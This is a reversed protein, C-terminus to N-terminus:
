YQGTRLKYIEQAVANYLAVVREPYQLAMNINGTPCGVAATVIKTAMDLYKDDISEAM